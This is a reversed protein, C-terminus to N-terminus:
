IVLILYSLAHPFSEIRLKVAQSSLSESGNLQADAGQLCGQPFGGSM